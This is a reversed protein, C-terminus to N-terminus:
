KEVLPLYVRPPGKFQTVLANNFQGPLFRHGSWINGGEAIISQSYPNAIQNVPVTKGERQESFPDKVMTVGWVELAVWLNGDPALSFDRLDPYSDTPTVKFRGSERTDLFVYGLYDCCPGQERGYMVGRNLDLKAEMLKETGFGPIVGLDETILPTKPDSSFGFRYLHREWRRWDDGENVSIIGYCVQNNLGGSALALIQDSVGLHNRRPSLWKRLTNGQLYYLETERAAVAGDGYSGFWDIGRLRGFLDTPDSILILNGEPSLWVFGNVGGFYVGNEKTPAIQSVITDIGFEPPIRVSQFASLFGESSKRAIGIGNLWGLIIEGRGGEALAKIGYNQGEPFFENPYVFIRYNEWRGTELPRPIEREEQSVKPKEAFVFLGRPLEVETWDERLDLDRERQSALKEISGSVAM